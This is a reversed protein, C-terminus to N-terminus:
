FHDLNMYMCMLTYLFLTATLMINYTILLLSSLVLCVVVLSCTDGRRSNLAFINSACLLNILRSGNSNRTPEGFQGVVEMAQQARGVRANFDGLVSVQGRQQFGAIDDLLKSYHDDEIAAPSPAM